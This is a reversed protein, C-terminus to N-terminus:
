QCKESYTAKLRARYSDAENDSVYVREGKEDYRYYRNIRESDKVQALLRRCYAEQKQQQKKAKLKEREKEMREEELAEVLRRQRERREQASVEPTESPTVEPMELSEAETNVPPRDGFHVKGNEDTWPYVEAQVGACFLLLAALSLGTALKMKM